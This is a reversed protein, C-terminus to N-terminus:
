RQAERLRRFEAKLNFEREFLDSKRELGAIDLRTGETANVLFIARHGIIQVDVGAVHQTHESELKEAIRLLSTLLRLQRRRESDLAAYRLTSFRLNRSPITIGCLHRWWTAGGAGAIRSNATVFWINATATTRKATSSIDSTTCYRAWKSCLGCIPVLNM